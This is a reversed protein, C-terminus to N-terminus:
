GHRELYAELIAVASAEDIRGKERRKRRPARRLRAQALRTTFREDEFVVEFGLEALGGAFARVRRAEPGEEGGTRLPLGVVVRQVGESRLWEALAELDARGGRRELYGRGFALRRGLEGVARGIRAEGVDIAAVRVAGM